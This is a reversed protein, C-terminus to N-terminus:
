QKIAQRLVYNHTLDLRMQETFYNKSQLWTVFRGHQNAICYLIKKVSNADIYLRNNKGVLMAATIDTAIWSYTDNEAM